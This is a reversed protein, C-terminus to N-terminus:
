GVEGVPHGQFQKIHESLMEAVKDLDFPWAYTLTVDPYKQRLEAMEEPIEYESHSGGPTFMTSIVTVDNVGDAIQQEIAESLTPTCFENYATSFRAGHLLPNLRTALLELDPRIPIAKQLAPGCGSKKTSNMNKPPCRFARPVDNPKWGSSSRSWNGPTIRRFAEMGLSCWVKQQNM